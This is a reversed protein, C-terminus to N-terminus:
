GAAPMRPASTLQKLLPGLADALDPRGIEQLEYRARVVPKHIRVLRGLDIPTGVIVLDCPVQAITAELDRIQADGYGMAPLLRGVAPYTSYTDAISGVAFPRPDIIEAAGFKRALVTGAGFRMEGHTLTPGDEVVLVRKGTIREAGDAMVPSAAEVIRADPNAARVHDRLTETATLDATDVKNIVVVDAMRLNAEGPHYSLENGLRLPDAVVVHLAPRYFPLDNNGGDWLIVDAERSAREVIEAYDVGAYVVTGNELHPEYEEMEEITCQQAKLDAVTAFRQVRQASLDGYPMPHRVVVVSLGANRLLQVIRRSAQSKGAGTRVACVAVVPKASELMTARPGLLVFDAGAANAVAARHMVYTYSVDSYSFVVQRVALREVLTALDEEPFIPVGQPYLPGALDAPYRRGAINPIQAATFGVVEYRTDDRYVVNFNHFDRGAAGLILTRIREM